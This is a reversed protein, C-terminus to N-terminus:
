SRCTAPPAPPPARRGGQGALLRGTTIVVAQKNNNPSTANAISVCDTGAVCSNTGTIAYGSSLAYYSVQHWNNAMPWYTPSTTWSSASPVQVTVTVLGVGLVSGGHSFDLAQAASNLTWTTTAGLIGLGATTVETGNPPDVFATAIDQVRASISSVCAVLCVVLGTCTIQTTGAGICIGLNFTPAPANAWVVSAASLPLQGTLTGSVGPQASMPDNFPAAWPYFGKRGAPNVNPASQWADFHSRLNQAFERGVRKEVLPVIDDSVIPLLRDNFEESQAASVFATDADANDTGSVVDLYNVPNCKPTNSAPSTTCKGTADCNVGVVCSRDQASAAGTRKLVTSASLVIAVVNNAPQTGAITLAGLTDSNIPQATSHDRLTSSLAYWLREGSSDRLDPLDLTKWPLRGVYAPCANGAFLEAVGDDDLDPCPLSGPRNDDSVARGILGQKAKILTDQTIRYRDARQSAANFSRLALLTGGLALVAIVVILAIGAQHHVRRM